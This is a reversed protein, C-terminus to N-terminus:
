GGTASCRLTNCLVTSYEYFGKGTSYGLHNERIMKRITDPIQGFGPYITNLYDGIFSITDLGMLDIDKFVNKDVGLAVITEIDAIGEELIRVAELAKSLFMLALPRVFSDRTEIVSTTLSRIFKKLQIYVSKNMLPTIVMETNLLYNKQTYMGFVMSGDDVQQAISEIKYIPSNILIPIAHEAKKQFNKIRQRKEELSELHYDLILDVPPLRDDTLFEANEMLTTHLRPNYTKLQAVFQDSQSDIYLKVSKRLLPFLVNHYLLNIGTIYVSDIQDTEMKDSVSDQNADVSYDCSYGAITTEFNDITLHDSLFEPQYFRPGYQEHLKKFLPIFHYLDNRIEVGLNINAAAPGTKTAFIYKSINEYSLIHQDYLMFLSMIGLCGLRNYIFGRSENLIHPVFAATRLLTMIAELVACSLREHNVVEVVRDLYEIDYFYAVTVQSCESIACCLESPLFLFTESLVPKEGASVDILMQLYKQKTAATDWIVEILLDCDHFQDITEVWIIPLSRLRKKVLSGTLNKVMIHHINGTVGQQARAEEIEFIKVTFGNQAFFLALCEGRNGKGIIGIKKQM